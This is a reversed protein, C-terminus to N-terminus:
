SFIVAFFFLFSVIDQEHMGLMEEGKAQWSPHSMVEV